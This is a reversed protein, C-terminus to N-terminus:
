FEFIFGITPLLSTNDNKLILPIANSGDAQLPNGDTTDFGSNDAKRKFTYYPLGESKFVLVNQFDLYLDLSTRKFNYKKDVRLDVQQFPKLQLANIASYDLTGVGTTIYNARSAVLDFPTYPAGGALRYKLGLEWNRKFKQGLTASVLYGFDWSSPRLVGNTGSFESNYITASVAYFTKKILKQQAFFELGYTTGKGNSLVAENGVASFDAGQNALSIGTRVSVPNHSYKKYFGEVTLRFDNKPLFQFGLAYHISHIYEMDKNVLEGTNNKFGLNTYVPIKYYSGISGTIDWKPIINYSFSLRPSLTKLPNNGDKTFSNMDTRLGGSLLLKNDFIRKSVQTFAGYKLFNIHSNFNVTVSPSVVNGNQDKVENSVKNFLSSTYDVHQAMVGYSFKWGAVYKNVDMRLKNETETSNLGLTRTGPAVQGDEFQNARNNFVDRSLSVNIYGNNVLRKLSAGVTYTWQDIDPNSRLIYENEPSSKKPVALRFKDIAGIGIFNLTTKKDIKTTVKFQFDWYQPRIPLDLAQFLYQLYSRRASAMFMTKSSVPGELTAAVESASLRINGSVKEPNAQRQKIVITSSLANDYRADFASSTLQVDDIFSVNLIGTAGGSAGQTQFHNLVPIEIGDLYYVNENPAGGRVIIDNRNAQAGGSVGPLVQIVKSVDFNGGPNSRIEESTLKQTSMPTIMDAARASKNKDITIVVAKLSKAEPLLEFNVIQANGPSVVINYKTQSGYGLQSITINKTGLSTELKYNGTSDTITGENSSEIKISAGPVPVQTYKDTANGYIIGKDQAITAASLLILCGFLFLICFRTVM